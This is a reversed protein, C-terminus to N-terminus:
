CCRIRALLVINFIANKLPICIKGPGILSLSVLIHKDECVSFFGGQGLGPFWKVNHKDAWPQFKTSLTKVQIISRMTGDHWLNACTVVATIDHACNHGSWIFMKLHGASVHRLLSTMIVDFSHQSTTKIYCHCWKTLVHWLTGHIIQFQPVTAM